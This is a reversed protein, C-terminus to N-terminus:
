SETEESADFTHAPEDYLHLNRPVNSLMRKAAAKAKAFQVLHKEALQTLGAREADRKVEDRDETM